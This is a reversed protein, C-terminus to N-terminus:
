SEEAIVSKFIRDISIRTTAIPGATLVGPQVEDAGGPVLTSRTDTWTPRLLRGVYCWTLAAIAALAYAITRAFFAAPASFKDYRNQADAFVLFTLVAGLLLAAAALGVSIYAGNLTAGPILRNCLHCVILVIALLAFNSFLDFLFNSM